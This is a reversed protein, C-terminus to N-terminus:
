LDLQFVLRSGNQPIVPAGLPNFVAVSRADGPIPVQFSGVGESQGAAVIAGLVDFFRVFRVVFATPDRNLANLAFPPIRVLPGQAGAAIPAGFAGNETRRVSAYGTPRSRAGYALAAIAAVGVVQPSAPRRLRAKVRIFSAHLTAQWGLAGDVRVTFSGPGDVSGQGAGWELEVEHELLLSDQSATPGAPIAHYAITVDRAEEPDLGRTEALIVARGDNPLRVFGKGSNGRAVSGSLPRSLWTQFATRAERVVSALALRETVEHTV